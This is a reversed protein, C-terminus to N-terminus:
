ADAEFRFGTGHRTLFGFGPFDIHMGGVRLRDAAIRDFMRARTACAM